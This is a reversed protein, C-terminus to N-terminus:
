IIFAASFVTSSTFYSNGDQTGAVGHSCEPATISASAIFSGIVLSPIAHIEWTHDICCVTIKILDDYCFSFSFENVSMSRSNCSFVQISIGCCSNCCIMFARSYFLHIVTKVTTHIDQETLTRGAMIKTCQNFAHCRLVASSTQEAGIITLRLRDKMFSMKVIMQTDAHFFTQICHCRDTHCRQICCLAKVQFVSSGNCRSVTCVYNKQIIQFIEM